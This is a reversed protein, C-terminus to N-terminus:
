STVYIVQIQQEAEPPIRVNFDYDISYTIRKFLFWQINKTKFQAYLKNRHEQDYDLIPGKEPM